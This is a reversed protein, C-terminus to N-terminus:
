RDPLYRIPDVARGDVRIEFHLMPADDPGQGMEAIQDGTAVDDGEEVLLRRNFAYASIFTEDHKVIILRGYGRLGSGAYVVRGPAAATIASGTPGAIDIGKNTSDGGEFSGVIEGRTPWSWTFSSRTPPPSPRTTSVTPRSDPIASTSAGSSQSPAASSRGTGTEAVSEGRLRLRQGPYITFDSGISNRRALERYDLGYRFAISYLTDGERVTYSEPDWNLARGGCAVLVLTM